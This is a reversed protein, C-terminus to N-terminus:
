EVKYVLISSVAGDSIYLKGERFAVSRPSMVRDVNYGARGEPVGTKSLVLIGRTDAVAIYRDPLVAVDVPAQLVDSGIHRIEGGFHTFVSVTGAGTDAIYITGDQAVDLGAPKNLIKKGSGFAGTSRISGGLMYILILESADRDTVFLDGTANDFSLGNFSGFLRGDAADKRYIVFANKLNRDFRLVRSNAADVAYMAIGGTSCVDIPSYLREVRSSSGSFQSIIKGENDLRVIRSNDRDCVYLTGNVGFSIGWPSSIGANEGLTKVFTLCVNGTVYPPLSQETIDSKEITGACSLWVFLLFTMLCRSLVECYGGCPCLSVAFPEEAKEARNVKKM